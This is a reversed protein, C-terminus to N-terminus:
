KDWILLQKGIDAFSKEKGNFTHVDIAIQYSKHSFTFEYSWLWADDTLFEVPHSTSTIDSRTDIYYRQNKKANYDYDLDFVGISVDDSNQKFYIASLYHGVLGEAWNARYRMDSYSQDVQSFTFCQFRKSNDSDQNPIICLNKKIQNFSLLSDKSFESLLEKAEKNSSNYFTIYILTDNEETTGVITTWDGAVSNRYKIKGFPFDMEKSYDESRLPNIFCNEDGKVCFVDVKKNFLEDKYTAFIAGHVKSIDSSYSRIWSFGTFNRFSDYRDYDFELNRNEDINYVCLREIQYNSSAPFEKAAAILAENLLNPLKDSGSEYTIKQSKVVEDYKNIQNQIDNFNSVKTNGIGMAELEDQYEFTEEETEFAGSHLDFTFSTTEDFSKLIYSDINKEKLKKKGKEAQLEEKYTHILVSYPKEESLPIENNTELVVKEVKEHKLITIPTTQCVWLNGETHEVIPLEFMIKNRLSKAEKATKCPEYLFVRYMHGLSTDEETCFVDYDADYLAEMMSDAYYQTKFSGLCVYWDQAAASAILLLSTLILSFFHKTSHKM